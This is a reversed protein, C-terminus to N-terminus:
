VLEGKRWVKWVGDPSIYAASEPEYPDIDSDLSIEITGGEFALVLGVDLYEDIAAVPVGILALMRERYAADSPTIREGSAELIPLTYLNFCHGAGIHLQIYDHIFTIGTLTQGILSSLDDSREKQQSNKIASLALNTFSSTMFQDREELTLFVRRDQYGNKSAFRLEYRIFTAGQESRKSTFHYEVTALTITLPMGWNGHGTTTITEFSRM